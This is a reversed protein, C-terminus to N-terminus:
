TPILIFINAPICGLIRISRFVYTYFIFADSANNTNTIMRSTEGISQGGLEDNVTVACYLTEQPQIIEPNLELTAETGLEIDGSGSKKYMRYTPVVTHDEPDEWTAECTVTSNSYYMTEDFSVTVSPNSNVITIPATTTITESLTDTAQATCTLVDGVNM